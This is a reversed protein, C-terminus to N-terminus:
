RIKFFYFKFTFFLISQSGILLAICLTRQNKNLYNELALMNKILFVLSIVYGIVLAITQIFSSNIFCVCTSPIFATM